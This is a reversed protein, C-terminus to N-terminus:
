DFNCTEGKDPTVSGWFVLGAINKHIFRVSGDVFGCLIGGPLSSQPVRPDCQTLLPQVQFTVSDSGRTIASSNEVFQAPYVDEYMKYDAFTSRRAGVGSPCLIKKMSPAQICENQLHRWDFRASGCIGYHETILLTNSTGDPISANISKGKTLVLPNLALSTVTEQLPPEQVSGNSSSYNFASTLSLSPDTKFRILAPPNDYDSELFPSIARIVSFPHPNPGIIVNGDVSPLFGHNGDSFQHIALISQRIGNSNSQKYATIRVKQIAGLLLAALVSLIGVVVLLEIITFATRLKRFHLCHRM